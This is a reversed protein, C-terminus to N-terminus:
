GTRARASTLSTGSTTSGMIGILSPMRPSTVSPEFVFRKQTADISAATTVSSPITLNTLSSCNLFAYDGIRTVSNPIIV